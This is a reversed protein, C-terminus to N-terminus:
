NEESYIEHDDVKRKSVKCESANNSPYPNHVNADGM